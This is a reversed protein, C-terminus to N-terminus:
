VLLIANLTLVDVKDLFYTLIKQYRNSLFYYIAFKLIKIIANQSFFYISVLIQLLVVTLCIILADIEYM